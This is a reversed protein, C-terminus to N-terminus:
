SSPCGVAELEANTSAGRVVVPGDVRWLVLGAATGTAVKRGALPITPLTYVYDATLADGSDSVLAGGAGVNAHEVPLGDPVSDGVYLGRKVRGNFFETLYLGHRTVGSM